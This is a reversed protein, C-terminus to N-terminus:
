LFEEMLLQDRLTNFIYAGWDIMELVLTTKSQGEKQHADMAGANRTVRVIMVGRIASLTERKAMVLSLTKGAFVLDFVNWVNSERGRRSLIFV